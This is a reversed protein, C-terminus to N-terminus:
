SGALLGHSMNSSTCGLGDFCTPVMEQAVSEPEEPAPDLVVGEPVVAAMAVAPAEAALVGPVGAEWSEAERAAGKGRNFM